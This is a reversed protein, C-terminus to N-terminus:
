AEETLTISAYGALDNKDYWCIDTAVLSDGDMPGPVLMPRHALCARGSFRGRRSDIPLTPVPEICGM